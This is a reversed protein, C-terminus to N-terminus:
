GSVRPSVIVTGRLLRTTIGGASEVELDYVAQTWTFGATVDDPITVTVTGEVGGFVIDESADYLVTTADVSSRFKMRGTYSTFDILEGAEDRLEGPGLVFTAGRAIVLPLEPADNSYPETM